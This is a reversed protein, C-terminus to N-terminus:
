GYERLVPYKEVTRPPHVRVDARENGRRHIVAQKLRDLHAGLPDDVRRPCQVSRAQAEDGDLVLAVALSAGSSNRATAAITSRRSPSPRSSPKASRSVLQTVSLSM